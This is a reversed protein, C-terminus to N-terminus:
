LLVVPTWEYKLSRRIIIIWEITADTKDIEGTAPFRWPWSGSPRYGDENYTNHGLWPRKRSRNSLTCHTGCPAAPLYRRSIMKKELGISKNVRRWNKIEWTYRFNWSYTLVSTTILFAFFIHGVNSRRSIFFIFLARVKVRLINQCATDM